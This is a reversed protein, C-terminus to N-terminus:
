FRIQNNKVKKIGKGNEKKHNPGVSAMQRAGAEVIAGNSVGTTEL